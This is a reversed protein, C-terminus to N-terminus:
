VVAVKEGDAVDVAAVGFLGLVVLVDAFLFGVDVFVVALQNVALIDVGDDDARGVVPMGLDADVGHAGAFIDVAFLRERQCNVLSFLETLDGLLCFAHHLDAGLLP